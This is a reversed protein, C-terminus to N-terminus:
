WLLALDLWGMYCGNRRRACLVLYPGGVRLGIKLWGIFQKKGINDIIRNKHSSPDYTLREQLWFPSYSFDFDIELLTM